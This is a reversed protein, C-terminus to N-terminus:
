NVWILCKKCTLWLSYLTELPLYNMTLILLLLFNTTQLLQQLLKILTKLPSLPSLHYHSHCLHIGTDDVVSFSVSVWKPIIYLMSSPFVSTSLFLSNYSIYLYFWFWYINWLHYHHPQFAPVNIGIFTGKSFALPFWLWDLTKNQKLYLNSWESVTM